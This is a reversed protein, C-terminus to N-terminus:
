RVGFHECTQLRVDKFSMQGDVDKELLDYVKNALKQLQEVNFQLYVVVVVLLLLLLSLLLLLLGFPWIVFDTVITFVQSVM